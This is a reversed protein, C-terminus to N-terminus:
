PDCETAGAATMARHHDGLLQGLRQPRVLEVGGDQVAVDIPSRAIFTTAM